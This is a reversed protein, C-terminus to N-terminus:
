AQFSLFLTVQVSLPSLLYQSFLYIICLFYPFHASFFPSVHQRNREMGGARMHQPPRGLTKSREVKDTRAAAWFLKEYQGPM